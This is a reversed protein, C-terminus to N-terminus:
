WSPIKFLRGATGEDHLTLVVEDPNLLPVGATSSPPLDSDIATMIIQIGLAAHERYVEM